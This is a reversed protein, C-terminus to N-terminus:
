HAIPVERFTELHERHWLELAVLYWVFEGYFGAHERQHLSILEDVFEPRFYGRQRTRPDRLVDQVLTKLRSDHLFWEGLPVGFGHKKKHLVEDPLIGKMARKFIYRKEMGNLKLKAPIRSSFEALRTDLLPYRVRVGALEATGSVKRLDNDALTMKVDMYLLRNLESSAHASFFHQEAITLSAPEPAQELFGREFIKKAEMSLFMNYSFIRRPNQVQARRIYRRPLSLWGDTAPLLRAVPEILAQRMWPPISHYLAFRKDTAYRANGGFLEDGGDGALLMDVGHERALLACHYSAIASSNAFPEDYYRILKPIAAIADEPSLCREYHRTAFRGATIRAFQIENYGELPFSISFSYAPHFRESLFAVVSSSDTGGSLYAGTSEVSCGRLHRHVAARMEERLERTWYKEDRGMDENYELDWYRKTTAEGGKFILLYGPSLREIGRFITLPAPVVSFLLFQTIAQPNVDAPSAQAARVAGVRSAFLLREAERSWYLTKFGFRDVALLLHRVREDWIAISFAGQLQQVFDPGQLLYLNALVEALSMRATNFGRETLLMSLEEQNHLDADVAIQVGSCRGIQQGSWRQSVGLAVSNGSFGERGLEGQVSCATLMADLRVRPMEIGPQCFGCIGSM